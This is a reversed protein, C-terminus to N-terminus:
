SLRHCVLDAVTTRHRYAFTAQLKRRLYPLALWGLGGFPPAFEIRDELWCAHTGDATFLHTHEWKAFPGRVQIDRFRKGPVIDRHEATWRQRFLGNSLELEVRSGDAVGNGRDLMRVSEWPPALREFAGPRLHWAYVDDASAAIRSRYVFTETRL